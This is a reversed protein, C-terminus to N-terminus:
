LNLPIDYFYLIVIKLFTLQILQIILLCGVVGDGNSGLTQAAAFTGSTLFFLVAIADLFAVAAACSKCFTATCGSTTEAISAVRGAVLELLTAVAISVSDLVVVDFTAVTFANTATVEATRLPRGGPDVLRGEAFTVVEISFSAPCGFPGPCSCNGRTVHDNVM